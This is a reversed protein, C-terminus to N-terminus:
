YRHQLAVRLQGSLTVLSGIIPNRKVRFVRNPEYVDHIFAGSRYRSTGTIQGGDADVAEKALV